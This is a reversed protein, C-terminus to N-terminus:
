GVMVRARRGYYPTQATPKDLPLRKPNFPHVAKALALGRVEIRKPDHTGLGVSALLALHNEGPFPFEKTGALPDYGMAATAVADACVSNRGVLILDPKIPEVGKCWPGEGGRNTEIGDIVALDVPRIGYIDATVRPVRVTWHRALDNKVEGPVGDPVKRAGNHLIAGRYSTTDENPADNAYLSTPVIGFLNKVAMTVGASAHDKLKALSIFVDTKEYRQNVDFAPYLFGGWPVTLRSYKPWAGRNRTDEFSVIHGGASQIMKVDWGGASFVEEPPKPSYQSEVLVIRRAGADHLIACLAAVFNPHVHYTRYAPLGGLKAGPGGTINLKVTVTKNAVLKAVGGILDLSEQLKRRLTQPEYTECLGIAVPESPADKSRDPRAPAPKAQDQALLVSPLGAALLGATSLGHRLAERRTIKVSLHDHSM